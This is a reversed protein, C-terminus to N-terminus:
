TLCLYDCVVNWFGSTKLLTNNTKYIYIHIRRILLGPYHTGLYTPVNYGFVLTSRAKCQLSGRQCPSQHDRRTEHVRPEVVAVPRTLECRAPGVYALYAM